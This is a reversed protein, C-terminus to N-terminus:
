TCCLYVTLNILFGFQLTSSFEMNRLVLSMEEKHEFWEPFEFSLRRVRIHEPGSCITTTALKAFHFLSQLIESQRLYNGTQKANTRTNRLDSKEM